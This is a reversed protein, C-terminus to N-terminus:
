GMVSIPASHRACPTGKWVSATCAAPCMGMSTSAIFISMSDMDPCLNWAGFPTPTSYAFFPTGSNLRM